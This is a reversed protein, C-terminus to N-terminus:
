STAARLALALQERNECPQCRGHVFNEGEGDLCIIQNVAIRAYKEVARLKVVEAELARVYRCEACADSFKKHAGCCDIM